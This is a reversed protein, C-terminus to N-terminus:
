PKRNTRRPLFLFFQKHQVLSSYDQRDTQRNLQLLRHVLNQRTTQSGVISVRGAAKGGKRASSRGGFFRASRAALFLTRSSRTGVLRVPSHWRSRHSLAGPSRQAMVTDCSLPTPLRTYTTLATQKPPHSRIRGEREGCKNLRLPEGVSQTTSNVHCWSSATTSSSQFTVHEATERCVTKEM